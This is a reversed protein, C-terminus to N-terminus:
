TDSFPTPQEEFFSDFSERGVSEKVRRRITTSPKVPRASTLRHGGVWAKATRTEKTPRWPRMRTDDHGWGNTACM